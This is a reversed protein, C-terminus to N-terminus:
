SQLKQLAAMLSQIIEDIDESKSSNEKNKEDPRDNNLAKTWSETAKDSFDGAGDGGQWKQNIENTGVVSNWSKTATSAFDKGEGSPWSGDWSNAPASNVANNEGGTNGFNDGHRAGLTEKDTKIVGNNEGPWSGDWNQGAPSATVQKEQFQAVQDVQFAQVKNDFGNPDYGKMFNDNNPNFKVNDMNFPSPTVIKPDFPMGGDRSNGFVKINSFEPAATTIARFASFPEPHREKMPNYNVFPITNPNYDPMNLNKYFAPNYMFPPAGLIEAFCVGFIIIILAMQFVKIETFVVIGILM